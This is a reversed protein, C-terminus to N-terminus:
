KKPMESLDKLAKQLATDDGSQEARRVESALEERRERLYELRIQEKLQERESVPMDEGVMLIANLREDFFVKKLILEGEKTKLKEKDTIKQSVSEIVVEECKTYRNIRKLYDSCISKIEASSTKGVVLLTIKM